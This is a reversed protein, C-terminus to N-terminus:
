PVPCAYNGILKLIQDTVSKLSGSCIIKTVQDEFGSPSAAYWVGLGVVVLCLIVVLCGCGALLWRGCGGKKKPAPAYAEPPSSPVQQAYVPPASPAAYPPMTQAPQPAPAETQVNGSAAMMTANPDYTMAEFTMGVNEGFMILEGPQLVHPGMLRQADVFTGNTSGLDEVVFTDGQMTLRAHKRSIEADNVAIENTADRGIYIESKSLPYTKGPTPGTKMVLQYPQAVMIM